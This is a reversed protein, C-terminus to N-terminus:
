ANDPFLLGIRHIFLLDGVLIGLWFLTTAPASVVVIFGLLMTVAMVMAFFVLTAAAMFMVLLMLAAATVVMAMLMLPM